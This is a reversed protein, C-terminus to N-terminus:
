EVDLDIMQVQGIASTGQYQKVTARTWGSYPRFNAALVPTRDYNSDWLRRGQDAWKTFGLWGRSAFFWRGSYVGTLRPAPLYLDCVSLDRDVDAIQLGEQEVDLWLAEISYGDFMALRTHMSSRSSGPWCWVYGQVRLGNRRCAELQQRTYSVGDTGTVAQIIVGVM